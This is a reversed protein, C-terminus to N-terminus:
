RRAEAKINALAQNFAGTTLSAGGVRSLAITDLKKGVVQSQYAASFNGQHNKSAAVEDGSYSVTAATVTDDALTLNVTVIHRANNPARYETITSHTGNAYVTNSTTDATGTPTDNPEIIPTGGPIPGDNPEPPVTEGDNEFVGDPTPITATESIPPVTTDTTDAPRMLYTGVGVLVALGLIIAIFPM